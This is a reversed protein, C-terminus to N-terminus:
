AIRMMTSLSSVSNLGDDILEAIILPVGGALEGSSRVSRAIQLLYVCTRFVPAHASNRTTLGTIRALASFQLQLFDPFSLIEQLPSRTGLHPM